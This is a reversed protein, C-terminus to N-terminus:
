EKLLLTLVHYSPLLRDLLKQEEEIKKKRPDNLNLSTFCDRLLLSDDLINSVKGAIAATIMPLQQLIMKHVSRSIKSFM